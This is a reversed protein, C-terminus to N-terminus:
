KQKVEKEIKIFMQIDGDIVKKQKKSIIKLRFWTNILRTLHQIAKNDIM